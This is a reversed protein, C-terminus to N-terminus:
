KLKSRIKELGISGCDEDHHGPEAGSVGIAGIIADGVKLLIGGTFAMFNPDAKIQAALDPDQQAKIALQSTPTKFSIATYGKRLATYGNSGSSRDPVYTLIPVGGANLVSVALPYQKCGESIAQAAELALDIGPGRLLIPPKPASPATTPGSASPPPAPPPIGDGPRGHDGPLGSDAAFAFSALLLATATAVLMSALKNDM